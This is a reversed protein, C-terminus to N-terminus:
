EKGLVLDVVWCGRVHPGADRCHVLIDPNNCGADQLADALIPMASFDRSDYMQRALATVTSTLWNSDLDVPRFPLPGAIERLLAVLAGSEERVAAAEDLGKERQEGEIADLPNAVLWFLEAEPGLFDEDYDLANAAAGAALFEWVIKVVRPQPLLEDAAEDAAERAAELEDDTALGDAYREAVEVAARSRPDVMLHRIRQCSAVAFLRLKRSTTHDGLFKLMVKPDTAALWDQETM